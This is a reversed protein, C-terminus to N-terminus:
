LIIFVTFTFIYKAYIATKKTFFFKLKINLASHIYANIGTKGFFHHKMLLQMYVKAM